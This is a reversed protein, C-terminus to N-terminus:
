NPTITRRPTRSVVSYNTTTSAVSLSATISEKSYRRTRSFIEKLPTISEISTDLMIGLGNLTVIVNNPTSSTAAINARLRRHVSVLAASTSSTAM